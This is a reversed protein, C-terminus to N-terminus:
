TISMADLVATFPAFTAAAPTLIMARQPEGAQRVRNAGWLAVAALRAVGGLDEERIGQGAM